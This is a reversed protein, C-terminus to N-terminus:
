LDVTFIVALGERAATEYFAPIDTSWGLVHELGDEDRYLFYPSTISWFHRNIWDSLSNERLWAAIQRVEEPTKLTLIEEETEVLFEGGFIINTPLRNEEQWVGGGLCFQLGEWAKELECARPTGFLREEIEELMYDYREEEPVSRLKEVEERNLAYLMGLRSM